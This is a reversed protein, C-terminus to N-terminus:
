KRPMTFSVGLVRRRVLGTVAWVIDLIGHVSNGLMRVLIGSNDHMISSGWAIDNSVLDRTDLYLPSVHTMPTLIYVSGVVCYEGMMGYTNADRKKPELLAVDRFRHHGNQSTATTQLMCKEYLFSENMALRGSSLIEAYVLTATDHVKLDTKQVYRSHEYPIIQDPIFELYSNSDLEVQASQCADRDPSGYIRTAGQTTLHVMTGRGLKVNISHSDGGLIGGSSSMMYVFAMDPVAEEYYLARQVHFPARAYQRTITTRTNTKDFALCMRGRLGTTDAM